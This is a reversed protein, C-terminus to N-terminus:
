SYFWSKVNKTHVHEGKKIDATARGIIQGYKIVASGKPIDKIAIKHLFKIKTKAVITERKTSNIEVELETGKEIRELVTAVNDNPHLLIAKKAM